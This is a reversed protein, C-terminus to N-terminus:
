VRGRTEKLSQRVKLFGAWPDPSLHVEFNQITIDAPAIHGLNEWDIPCSIAAGPRARLSYPAVSTAGRGNRVWDIYIRGKRAAKRMNATYKKPWKHELLVAVNRAFERVQEWGAKPQNPVVVHYGKGGSTKLFSELALEDLTAHLDTVGQRLTKLDLGEDPDLDFVVWDPKELTKVRSGWVHFELASMQVAGILDAKDRITMYTVADGDNELIDIPEIRPMQPNYHKMYFSEGAIGDPSRLLSVPRDKIYPLMIGAIRDYYAAVEGKSIQDDPYMLKEPSSITVGGIPGQKASKARPKATAAAKAAPKDSSTKERKPTEPKPMADERLGKYSAQRLVQDNTWEAFQVETTLSPKLWVVQEGRRKDGRLDVSPTKVQLSSFKAMLDSKAQETFGTGTRGAYVLKGDREVALLLSSFGGAAKESITYGAIRFLERKACKIKLWSGSRTGSYTSGAQKSIIGELGQRCAQELLAQGNGIVEPSYLIGDPGDSLAQKLLAKRELLPLNRLDADGLALLDFVVYKLDAQRKHKIAGQLAQFDSHNNEDFVVVEGDLVVNAPAKWSALADAVPSLKDTWDLGSRSILRAEGDQLFAVIRYGDYKFEHVWDDSAPASARLKALNVSVESFPLPERARKQLAASVPPKASKKKKSREPEPKPSSKVAEGAIQEMSHDSLVGTNFRDIGASDQAFEDREKILLWNKDSESSKLQVLVFRGELRKGKLNFKLEGKKLGADVDGLPEWVGLDFLMVTGGGYEEAPITGEFQLYDVPHDEVRVALRKDAPNMSPGKPVAWSLLVGNWELRLDFHMRSADHKQMGYRLKTGTRVRKGRPESTKKFDRKQNYTELAM